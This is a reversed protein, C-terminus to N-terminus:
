LPVFNSMKSPDAPVHYWTADTGSAEEDKMTKILAPYFDLDRNDQELRKLSEARYENEKADYGNQYAWDLFMSMFLYVLFVFGLCLVAIGVQGWTVPHEKYDEM